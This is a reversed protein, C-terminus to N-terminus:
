SNRRTHPAHTEWVDHSLRPPPPSRRPPSPSQALISRRAALCAPCSWAAWVCGAGGAHTAACGGDESSLPFSLGKGPSPTFLFLCSSLVPQRRCAQAAQRGDASRAARPLSLTRSCVPCRRTGVALSLSGLSAPCPMVGADGRLPQNQSRWTVYRWGCCSSTIDRWSGWPLPSDGMGHEHSPHEARSLAHEGDLASVGVRAGGAMLEKVRRPWWVHVGVLMGRPRPCGCADRQATLGGRDRM